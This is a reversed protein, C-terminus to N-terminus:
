IDYLPMSHLASTSVDLGAIGFGHKFVIDPFHSLFDHSIELSFATLSMIIHLM